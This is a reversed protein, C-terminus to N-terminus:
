LVWNKMWACLGSSALPLRSELDPSKGSRAKVVLVSLSILDKLKEGSGLVAWCQGASGVVAWCQGASFFQPRSLHGDGQLEPYRREVSKAGM